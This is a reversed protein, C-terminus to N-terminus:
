MLNLHGIGKEFTTYSEIGLSRLLLETQSFSFAYGDPQHADSGVSISTGGLEIYRKIVDPGPNPVKREHRYGSTNVELAIGKEIIFTLISDIIGAHKDYTFSRGKDPSYRIAYDLHGLVQIFPFAKINELIQEFYSNLGADEFQGKWYTSHYPDLNNVLHTSGIILDFSYQSLLKQIKDKVSATNKLGLEIGSLIQINNRYSEKLRLLKDFYLEPSFLFDMGEESLPFDFDMHDTLYFTEFGLSIAQEVMAEPPTDSDSSFLSHVHCDTRIM